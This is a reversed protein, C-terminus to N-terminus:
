STRWAYGMSVHLYSIPQDALRIGPEEIEEPSIRYGVIFKDDAYKAVTQNVRKIIELAFRMRNELSGGWKDTRRNSHPSFFQQM